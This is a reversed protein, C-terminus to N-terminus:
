RGAAKMLVIVAIGGILACANFAFHSLLPGVLSGSRERSWACVLGLLTTATVITVATRPDNGAIFLTLHFAGFLLGSALIRATSGAPTSEAHGADDPQMWGQVLGRVFVEEAITSGFWIVAIIKALGMERLGEMPPLGLGIIVATAAAGLVGGAAIPALTGALWSRPAALGWVRRPRSVLLMLGAAVVVMATKLIVQRAALSEVGAAHAVVSTGASLAAFLAAGVVAAALPSLHRPITAM